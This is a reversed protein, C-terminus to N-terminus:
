RIPSRSSFFLPIQAPTRCLSLNLLFHICAPCAFNFGRFQEYEEATCCSIHRAELQLPTTAFWTCLACQIHRCLSFSIRFMTIESLNRNPIPNPFCVGCSIYIHYRYNSRLAFSRSVSGGPSWLFWAISFFELFKLNTWSKEIDKMGFKHQDFFWFSLFAWSEMGVPSAPQHTSVFDFWRDYKTWTHTDVTYITRTEAAEQPTIDSLGFPDPNLSLPHSCTHITFKSPCYGRDCSRRKNWSDTVFLPSLGRAWSFQPAQAGGRYGVLGELYWALLPFTTTFDGLYMARYNRTYTDPYRQQDCSSAFKRM